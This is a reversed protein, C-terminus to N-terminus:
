REDLWAQLIAELIPENSKEPDDDFDPLALVRERLESLRLTVPDLDPENDYLEEDQESSFKQCFLEKVEPSFIIRQAVEDMREVEDNLQMALRYCLSLNYEEMRRAIQTLFVAFFTGICLTLVLIILASYSWFLERQITKGRTKKKMHNVREVARRFNRGPVEPPDIM